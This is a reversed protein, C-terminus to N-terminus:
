QGFDNQMATMMLDKAVNIDAMSGKILAHGRDIRSEMAKRDSAKFVNVFELFAKNHDNHIKVLRKTIAAYIRGKPFEIARFDRDEEEHTSKIAALISQPTRSDNVFEEAMSTDAQVLNIIYATGEGLYRARPDRVNMNAVTRGSPPSPAPEQRGTTPSRDACGIVAVMLIVLPPTKM